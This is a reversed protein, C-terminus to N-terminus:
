HPVALWISFSLAGWAVLYEIPNGCSWHLLPVRFHKHLPWFLPVGSPNLMDAFIHSIYGVAFPALIYNEWSGGHGVLSVAGWLCLGVALISHTIGRHGFIAGLPVSVIKLRGGAWSQPTDLDPALGAAAAVLSGGLVMNLPAGALTSAVIWTAAAFPVHNKYLM